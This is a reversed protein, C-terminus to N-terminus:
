FGRREELEREIRENRTRERLVHRAVHETSKGFLDVLLAVSIMESIVSEDRESPEDNFAIWKVGERFSARKYATRKM